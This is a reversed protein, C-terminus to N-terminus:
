NYLFLLRLDVTDTYKVLNPVKTPHEKIMDGEWPLLFETVIKSTHVLHTYKTHNRSNETQPTCHTTLPPAKREWQPV